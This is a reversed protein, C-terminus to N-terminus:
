KGGGLVMMFFVISLLLFRAKGLKLNLYQHRQDKRIIAQNTVVEISKVTM